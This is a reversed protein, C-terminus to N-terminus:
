TTSGDPGRERARVRSELERHKRGLENIDRAAKSLLASQVGQQRTLEVLESAHGHVAAVTEPWERLVDLLQDLVKILRRGIRFLFTLVVSAAAAAAFWYGVDVHQSM